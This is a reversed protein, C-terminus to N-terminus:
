PPLHKPRMITDGEQPPPESSVAPKTGPQKNTKRVAGWAKRTSDQEDACQIRAQNWEAWVTISDRKLPLYVLVYLLGLVMGTPVILLSAIIGLKKLDALLKQAAYWERTLQEVGEPSALREADILKKRAAEQLQITDERYLRTLHTGVRPLAMGCLSLMILSIFVVVCGVVTKM